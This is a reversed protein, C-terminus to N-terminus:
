RDKDGDGEEERKLEGLLEDPGVQLDQEANQALQEGHAEAILLQSHASEADDTLDKEIAKRPRNKSGERTLLRKLAQSDVNEGVVDM